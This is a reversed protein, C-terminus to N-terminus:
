SNEALETPRLANEIEDLTGAVYITKSAAVLLLCVNGDYGFETGVDAIISVMHPDVAITRTAVLEFFNPHFFRPREVFKLETLRIM